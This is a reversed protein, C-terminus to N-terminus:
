ATQKPEGNALRYEPPKGDSSRIKFLKAATKSCVSTFSPGSHKLSKLTKTSVVNYNTYFAIVSFNIINHRIKEKPFLTQPYNNLM